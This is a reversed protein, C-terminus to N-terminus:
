CCALNTPFGQFAEYLCVLKSPNRFSGGYRKIRLVYPNILFNCYELQKDIAIRCSNFICSVEWPINWAICSFVCFNSSLSLYPLKWSTPQAENWCILIFYSLSYSNPELLNFWSLLFPVPSPRFQVLIKKKEKKPQLRFSATLSFDKNLSFGACPDSDCSLAPSIM